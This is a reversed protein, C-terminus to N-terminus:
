FEKEVEEVDENSVTEEEDEALEDPEEHIDNETEAEVPATSARSQSPPRAKQTAERQDVGCRPCLPEPRNLDYFKCGCSHCTYRDGWDPKVM